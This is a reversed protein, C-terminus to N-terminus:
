RCNQDDVNLKELNKKKSFAIEQSIKRFHLLKIWVNRATSSGTIECDYFAKNFIITLWGKSKLDGYKFKIFWVSVIYHANPEAM